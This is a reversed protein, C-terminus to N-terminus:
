VIAAVRNHLDEFEAGYADICFTNFGFPQKSVVVGSGDPKIARVHLAISGDQFCDGVKLDTVKVLKM